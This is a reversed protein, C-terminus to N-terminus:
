QLLENIKKIFEDLSKPCGIFMKGNESNMTLPVVAEGGTISKLEEIVEECNVEIVRYNKFGSKRFYELLKKCPICKEHVYVLITNKKM